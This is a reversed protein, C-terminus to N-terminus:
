GTGDFPAPSLSPAMVLCRLLPQNGPIDTTVSGHNKIAVGKGRLFIFYFGLVCNSCTKRKTQITLRLSKQLSDRRYSRNETPWGLDASVLIKKRDALGFWVLGYEREEMGNSEILLPSTVAVNNGM